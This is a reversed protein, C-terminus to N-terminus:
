ADDEDERHKRKPTPTTQMTASGPTGTLRSRSRTMCLTSPSMMQADQNLFDQTSCKSGNQLPLDINTKLLNIILGSSALPQLNARQIAACLIKILAEQTNDKSSFDIELLCLITPKLCWEGLMVAGKDTLSLIEAHYNEVTRRAVGATITEINSIYAKIDIISRDYTPSLSKEDTPKTALLQVLKYIFPAEPLPIITGWINIHEVARGTEIITGGMHASSYLSLCAMFWAALKRQMQYYCLQLNEFQAIYPLGEQSVAASLPIAPAQKIKTFISQQALRKTTELAARQELSQRLTSIQAMVNGPYTKSFHEWLASLSASSIYAPAAPVSFVLPPTAPRPITHAARSRLEKVDWFEITGNNSLSFISEGTTNFACAIVSQNSGAFTKECNGELDWVKITNDYAASVIWQGDLSFACAVVYDTHGEFTCLCQGQLDWLKLTKDQSASVIFQGNSSFACARVAWTHGSFTHRHNGNLDWLILTNDSSASLISDDAPSFICALVASHHGIFTKLNAGSDCDWLKVTKDYSASLIFKKSNFACATVYHTHGEFVRMCKGSSNDWLRLTTDSSASLMNKGNPSFAFANVTDAHGSLTRTQKWEEKSFVGKGDSYTWLNPSNNDFSALLIQKRDPSFTCASIVKPDLRFTKYPRQLGAHKQSLM